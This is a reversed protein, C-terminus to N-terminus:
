LKIKVNKVLLFVKIKELLFVKVFYIITADFNSTKKLLNIYAYWVKL